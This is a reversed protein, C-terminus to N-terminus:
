KQDNKDFNRSRYNQFEIINDRLFDDPCRLYAQEYEEMMEHMLRETRKNRQRALLLTALFFISFVVFFSSLVIIIATDM